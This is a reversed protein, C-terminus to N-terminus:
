DGQDLHVKGRLDEPIRMFVADNLANPALREPLVTVIVLGDGAASPTIGLVICGADQLLHHYAQQAHEIRAPDLKKVTIEVASRSGFLRFGLFGMITLLVGLPYMGLGCALGIVVAFITRGTAHGPASKPRLRLLGGMGFVVLAMAPHELVLVAIAASIAAYLVLARDDEVSSLDHVQRLRRRAYILPVVLLVALPVNLLLPVLERWQAFSRLGELANEWADGSNGMSFLDQTIRYM